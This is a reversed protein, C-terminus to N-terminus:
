GGDILRRALSEPLGAARVKAAAAEHDYPVRHFVLTATDPEFIAYCAAPLGDRPQGASGPIVLWRRLPSLPIPVGPSPVFDGSKGTSTLHFLHPEHVHGSFTHRQTCAHMSRTAESRGEVYAWGGPDFANAHVFLMEGDVATLPLAGLFELQEPNLQARTWEVVRRADDVMGARPGSVAAEDHNGLVALAGQAVLERVQDVVWGPDAGYGVYDGLFAFRQAGQTRAHELLASLAERNAHLDALLALKM